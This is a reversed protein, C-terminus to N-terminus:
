PRIVLRCNIFKGGEGGGGAPGRRTYSAGFVMALKTVAHYVGGGNVLGM